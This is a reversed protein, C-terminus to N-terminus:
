AGVVLTALASDRMWRGGRGLRRPLGRPGGAEPICVMYIMYISIYIYIYIHSERERM